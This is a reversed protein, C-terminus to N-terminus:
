PPVLECLRIALDVPAGIAGDRQEASPGPMGILTDGTWIGCSCPPLEKGERYLGAHLQATREIQDCAALIARLPHDAYYRPAGYVGLVTSEVWSVLLGGRRACRKM